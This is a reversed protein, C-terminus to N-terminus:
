NEQSVDFRGALDAAAFALQMVKILDKNDLHAYGNLLQDRLQELTEAQDVIARVQDVMSKISDGAEGALQDTQANVSTPDIDSPQAANDPQGPHRSQQRNNTSTAGEKASIDDKGALAAQGQRSSPEDKTLPSKLTARENLLLATLKAAAQTAQNPIDVNDTTINETRTLMTLIEEGEAPVPIKLKDNVYNVPIKAGATVLKPIAEGFVTIDEPDQIDSKFSPIRNDAFWANLSAM